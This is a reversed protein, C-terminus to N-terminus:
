VDQLFNSFHLFEWSFNSQSPVSVSEIEFLHLYLNTARTPHQEATSRIVTRICAEGIRIRIVNGRVRIRVDPRAM